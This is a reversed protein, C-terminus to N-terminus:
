GQRRQGKELGYLPAIEMIKFNYSRSYFIRLSHPIDM